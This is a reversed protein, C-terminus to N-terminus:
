LIGDNRLTEFTFSCEAIIEGTYVIEFVDSASRSWNCKSIYSIEYPNVSIPTLFELTAENESEETISTVIATVFNGNTLKIFVSFDEEYDVINSNDVLVSTTIQSQSLCIFDNKYTPIYFQSFKGKTYFLFEKILERDARNGSFLSCNFTSEAFLWPRSQYIQGTISDVEDVRTTISGTISDSTVFNLNVLDKSNHSHQSFSSYTKVSTIDFELEVSQWNVGHSVNKVDVYEANLLPIITANSFDKTVGSILYLTGETVVQIECIEYNNCDKILAYNATSYLTNTFDSVFTDTGIVVNGVNIADPWYACLWVDDIGGQVSNILRRSNLGQSKFSQRIKVRPEDRLALSFPKGTYSKYDDTFFEFLESMAEPPQTIVSYTISNLTVRPM